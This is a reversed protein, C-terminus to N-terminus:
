FVPSRSLDAAPANRGFEFFAARTDGLRAELRPRASSPRRTAAFSACAKSPRRASVPRAGSRDEVPGGGCGKEPPKPRPPRPPRRGECADKKCEPRHSANIVGCATCQWGWKASAASAGLSSSRRSLSRNGARQKDAGGSNLWTSSKWADQTAQWQRLRDCRPATASAGARASRCSVSRTPGATPCGRAARNVGGDRPLDASTRRGAARRPATRTWTDWDGWQLKCDDLLQGIVVQGSAVNTLSLRATDTCVTLRAMDGSLWTIGGGAGVKVPGRSTWWKGQLADLRLEGPCRQGPRAPRCASGRADISADEAADERSEAAAGPTDPTDVCARTAVPRQVESGCDSAKEREDGSGDDSSSSYIEAADEM